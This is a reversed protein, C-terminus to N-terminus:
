IGKFPVIKPSSAFGKKHKAGSDIGWRDIEKVTIGSKQLIAVNKKIIIQGGSPRPTDLRFQENGSDNM